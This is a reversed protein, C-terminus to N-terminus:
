GVVHARLHEIVKKILAEKGIRTTDLVYDYHKPDYIDAQGYYKQYRLQDSAIRNKVSAEVDAQSKPNAMENRKDPHAKLDLWIRKAGEEPTVDLLIKYSHPILFYSTRGEIVFNDDTQGLKKQYEDVERDTSFDTEGLHNYEELTMGRKRAMERRLGGMYYRKLGFEDTIAQAVSSKGSGPKGSLTIIM